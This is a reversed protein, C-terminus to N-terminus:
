IVTGNDDCIVGGVKAQVARLTEVVLTDVAFGHLRGSMDAQILFPGNAGDQDDAEAVYLYSIPQKGDPSFVVKTEHNSQDPFIDALGRKANERDVIGEIFYSRM